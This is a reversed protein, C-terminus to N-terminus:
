DISLIKEDVCDEGPHLGSSRRACFAISENSSWSTSFRPSAGFLSRRPPNAVQGAAVHGSTASEAHTHMWTAVVTHVLVRARNTPEQGRKYRLDYADFSGAQKLYRRETRAVQMTTTSDFYSRGKSSRQPAANIGNTDRTGAMPM